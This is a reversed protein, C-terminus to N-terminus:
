TTYGRDAQHKTPSSSLFVQIWVNRHTFFLFSYIDAIFPLTQLLFFVVRQIHSGKENKVREEDFLAYAERQSCLMYRTPLKVSKGTKPCEYTKVDKIKPSVRTIDDRTYFEYISEILEVNQPMERRQNKNKTILNMLQNQADPDLQEVMKAIVTQQKTPSEPLARTARRLAKGLSQVTNYSKGVVNNSSPQTMSKREKQRQRFLIARKRAGERRQTIIQSSQSIPMRNEEDKKKARNKKM